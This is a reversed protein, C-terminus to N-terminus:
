KKPLLTIDLSVDLTEAIKSVVLKPIEIKHDANKVPFGSVL